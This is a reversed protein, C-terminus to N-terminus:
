TDTRDEASRESAGYQGGLDQVAVVELDFGEQGREDRGDHAIRYPPGEFPETREKTVNPVVLERAGHLQPPEPDDADEASQDSQKVGLAEVAHGREETSEGNRAPNTRRDTAQDDPADGQGDGLYEAGAVSPNLNAESSLEQVDWEPDHEDQRERADRRGPEGNTRATRAADEARAHHDAGEDSGRDPAQQLWDHRTEAVVGGRVDNDPHHGAEPADRPGGQRHHQHDGLHRSRERQDHRGHERDTQRREDHAAVVVGDIAALQATPGLGRRM